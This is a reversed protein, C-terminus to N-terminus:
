GATEEGRGAGCEGREGETGRKMWDNGSKEYLYVSCFYVYMFLYSLIVVHSTSLVMLNSIPRCM